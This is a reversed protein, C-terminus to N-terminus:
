HRGHAKIYQFLKDRLITLEAETTKSDRKQDRAFAILKKGANMMWVPPLDGDPSWTTGHMWGLSMVFTSFLYTEGDFGGHQKREYRVELLANVWLDYIVAALSEPIQVEIDPKAPKSLLKETPVRTAQLLYRRDDTRIVVLYSGEAQMAGAEIFQALYYYEPIAVKGNYPELHDLDQVSETNIKGTVDTKFPETASATAEALLCIGLLAFSTAIRTM